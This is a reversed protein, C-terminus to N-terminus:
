LQGARVLHLILTNPSLWVVIDDYESGVTEVPFRSVFIDDGNLNDAQDASAPAADADPGLSLVVALIQTALINGSACAASECVDYTPDVSNVVINKAYEWTNIDNLSYRLPRGWSDIILSNSDFKGNLGLTASPVYGHETTCDSGAGATRSEAGGSALTAPCPLFGNLAAYGMLADRVEDLQSETENINQNKRQTTLPGMISGLLFGMILLVIAVEVLTFGGNLKGTVKAVGPKPGLHICCMTLVM